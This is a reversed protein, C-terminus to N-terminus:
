YAYHLLIKFHLCVWRKILSSLVIWWQLRCVIASWNSALMNKSNVLSLFLNTRGSSILSFLSVQVNDLPSAAGAVYSVSLTRSRSWGRQLDFMSTSCVFEATAEEGRGGRVAKENYVATMWCHRAHSLDCCHCAEGLDWCHCSEVNLLSPLSFAWCHCFEFNLLSM